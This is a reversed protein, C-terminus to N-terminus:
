GFLQEKVAEQLLQLPTALLAEKCFGSVTDTARLLGDIDLDKLITERYPNEEPLEAALQARKMVIETSALAHLLTGGKPIFFDLGVRLVSISNGYRYLDEIENIYQVNADAIKIKAEINELLANLKKNLARTKAKIRNKNTLKKIEEKQAASEALLSDRFALYIKQECLVAERMNLWSAQVEWPMLSSLIAQKSLHAFHIIQNRLVGIALSSAASQLLPSLTEWTKQKTINITTNNSSLINM